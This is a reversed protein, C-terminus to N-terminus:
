FRYENNTCDIIVFNKVCDKVKTQVVLIIDVGNAYRAHSFIDDGTSVIDFRIDHIDSLNHKQAHQEFQM